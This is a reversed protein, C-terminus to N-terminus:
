SGPRVPRATPPPASPTSAVPAQPATSTPSIGQASAVAEIRSGVADASSVEGVRIAIGVPAHDRATRALLFFPDLKVAQAFREQAALWDQRDLADLGQGYAVVAEHNLTHSHYLLTRGLEPDLKIKNLEIIQALLQKQLEFFRVTEESLEFTGLPEGQKVSAVSGAISLTGEAESMGGLVLKEAGLLRGARVATARDAAGPGPRMGDLLAQMRTREIVTVGKIQALDAITMATLAKQLPAMDVGAGAVAFNFVAYSNDKAPMSRQDEAALAQRALKKGLEIEVLTILRDMEQKMLPKTPDNFTRWAELAATQDDLKLRAWGLYVVCMSAKPEQALVKEFEPVAKQADGNKLYAYGLLERTKWNGSDSAAQAEFATVAAGYDGARMADAGTMPATCGALLAVCCLFSATLRATM